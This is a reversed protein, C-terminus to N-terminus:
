SDRIVSGDGNIVIVIEGIRIKEARKQLLPKTFRAMFPLEAKNFPVAILFLGAPVAIKKDIVRDRHARKDIFSIQVTQRFNDPCIVHQLPGDVAAFDLSVCVANRQHDACIRQDAAAPIIQVDAIEHIQM